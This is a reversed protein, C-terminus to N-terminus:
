EITLERIGDPLEKQNMNAELKKVFDKVLLRIIVSHGARPFYEDIIETDGAFLRLSKKELEGKNRQSYKDVM